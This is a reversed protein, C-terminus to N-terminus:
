SNDPTHGSAAQSFDTICSLEPTSDKFTALIGCNLCRVRCDLTTEGKLGSECESALFGIRVGTDIHAWPLMEDLPRERRAYFDPDLGVEAFAREWLGMDFVENWADFRAGLQWARHIVRGLRRDGRSLAAELLSSQPDHWSFRIGRGRLGGRLLALREELSEQDLLPMWQFPTHPKPIFTAVSVSVQAKRGQYQRGVALVKKVLDVIAAVDELTETPLGIM